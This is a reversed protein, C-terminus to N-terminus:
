YRGRHHRKHNRIRRLYRRCVVLQLVALAVAAGGTILRYQYQGALGSLLGMGCVILWLDDAASLLGELSSLDVLHGNTPWTISSWDETELWSSVPEGLHLTLMLGIGIGAIALAAPLRDGATSSLNPIIGSSILLTDAIFLVALTLILDHRSCRVESYVSKQSHSPKSV